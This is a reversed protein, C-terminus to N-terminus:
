VKVYKLSIGLSNIMNAEYNFVIDFDYTSQGDSVKIATIEGTKTYAELNVHVDIGTSCRMVKSIISKLEDAKIVYKDQFLKINKPKKSGEQIINHLIAMTSKYFDTYLPDQSIDEIDEIPSTTRDIHPEQPVEDKEVEVYETITKVEEPDNVVVNVVEVVENTNLEEQKIEEIEKIVEEPNTPTIVENVEKKRVSDLSPYMSPLVNGPPLTEAKRTKPKNRSSVHPDFESLKVTRM